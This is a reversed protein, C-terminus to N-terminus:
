IEWYRAICGPRILGPVEYFKFLLEYGVVQRDDHWLIGNLADETAKKLNALDGCRNEIPFADAAKSRPKPLFFVLMGVVPSAFPTFGANQQKFYAQVSEQWVKMRQRGPPAIPITRGRSKKVHYAKWPKPDGYVSFGVGRDHNAVCNIGHYIRPGLRLSIPKALDISM